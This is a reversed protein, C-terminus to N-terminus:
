TPKMPTIVRWSLMTSGTSPGHFDRWFDLNQLTPYAELSPYEETGRLPQFHAKGVLATRYGAERFRDGVTPEDEPLKTGLSYAGHQSPYKGTIMQRAHPYLDPNPCYARTFLTGQGALQDLHPTIVEPNICGLMNWHQQDSTILLVNLKAM